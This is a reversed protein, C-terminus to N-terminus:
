ANYVGLRRANIELKIVDLQKDYMDIVDNLQTVLITQELLLDRLDSVEENDQCCLEEVQDKTYRVSGKPKAKLSHQALIRSYEEKMAMLLMQEWGKRAMIYGRWAGFKAAWESLDQLSLGHFKTPFDYRSDINQPKNPFFRSIEKERDLIKQVVAKYGM